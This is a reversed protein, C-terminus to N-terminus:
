NINKVMRKLTDDKDIFHHKLAALGHLIAMFILIYAFYYHVLGAIDEQNEDIINITLMDFWNFVSITDVDASSILYGSLLVTFLLIYLLVVMSKALTRTLFNHSVIAQPAKSIFRWCLRFVSVLILLVGISEHWHPAKQYWPSSYPLEVMWYGLAFLAFVAIASLWHLSRTLLNYSKPANFLNM